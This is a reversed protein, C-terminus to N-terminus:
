VVDRALIEGTEDAAARIDIVQFLRASKAVPLDRQILARADVGSITKQSDRHSRLACTCCCCHVVFFRFFRKIFFCPKKFKISTAYPWAIVEPRVTSYFALHYFLLLQLFTEGNSLFVRNELYKIRLIQHCVSLQFGILRHDVMRNANRLALIKLLLINVIITIAAKMHRPSTVASVEMGILTRPWGTRWLPRALM